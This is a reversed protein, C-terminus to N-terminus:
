LRNWVHVLKNNNLLHHALNLNPDRLPLQGRTETPILLRNDIIRYRLAIAFNKVRQMQITGSPQISGWFFLGYKPM